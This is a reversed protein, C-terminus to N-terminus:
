SLVGRLFTIPWQEVMVVDILILIVVLRYRYHNWDLVDQVTWDLADRRKVWRGIRQWNFFLLAILSYRWIRFAWAYDDLFRDLTFAIRMSKEPGMVWVGFFSLFMVGLVTVGTYFFAKMLM